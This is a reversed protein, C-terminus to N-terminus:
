SSHRELWICWSAAAAVAVVFSVYAPMLVLIGVAAVLGGAAVVVGWAVKTTTQRHRM